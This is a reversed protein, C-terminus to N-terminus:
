TKDRVAAVADPEAAAAAHGGTDPDVLAAERMRRARRRAPTAMLYLVLAVPLLGYLVFTIAAGLLSGNSSSAEALAMMLTVYLWAIPILLM